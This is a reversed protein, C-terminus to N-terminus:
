ENNLEKEYDNYFNLYREQIGKLNWKKENFLHWWFYSIDTTFKNEGYSKGNLEDEKENNDNWRKLDKELQVRDIPFKEQQDDKFLYRFLTNSIELKENKTM